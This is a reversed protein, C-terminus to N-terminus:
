RVQMYDAIADRDAEATSGFQADTGHYITVPDSMVSTYHRWEIGPVGYLRGDKDQPNPQSQM